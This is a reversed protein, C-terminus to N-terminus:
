SNSCKRIELCDEPSWVNDHGHLCRDGSSTQVIWCTVVNIVINRILFFIQCLILRPCLRLVLYINQIRFIFYSVSLNNALTQNVNNLINKNIWVKYAEGFLPPFGIVLDADLSQDDCFNVKSKKCWPVFTHYHQVESVVDFM